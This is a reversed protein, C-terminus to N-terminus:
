NEKYFYIDVQLFENNNLNEDTNYKWTHNSHKKVGSMIWFGTYSSETTFYVGSNYSSYDTCEM